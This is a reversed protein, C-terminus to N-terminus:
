KRWPYFYIGCIYHFHRMWLPSGQWLTNKSLEFLENLPTAATSTPPPVLQYEVYNATFVNKLAVWAENDLNQLKPKFGKATLEQHIHDYAKVWESDSRSKM